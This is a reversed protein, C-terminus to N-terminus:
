GLYFTQSKEVLAAEGDITSVASWSVTVDYERRNDVRRMYKLKGSLSDGTKLSVRSSIDLYLVTQKWHTPTTQVSTSLLVPPSSQNHAFTTDFSIVFGHVQAEKLMRLQFPVEFDLDEDKMTKLDFSAGCRGRSSVILKPDVVEVQAESLLLPSLDSLDFGYADNWWLLRDGAPSSLDSTIAEMYLSAESPLLVGEPSLYRDRAVIVSAFMNEFFLGYGMWESVLVDALQHQGEQLQLLVSDEVKGQILTIVDQYGNKNVIRRAHDIIGSADIGYVAKAGARAAILSLIGSGCGIDLVVKNSLYNNDSLANQYALTRSTDRLMTEHISIHSYSNFYYDNRPNNIVDEEEEDTLDNLVKRYGSIAKELEKLKIDNSVNQSSASDEKIELDTLHLNNSELYEGLEVLLMDDRMVPLLYSDNGLFEKGRITATLNEIFSHDVHGGMLQLDLVNQRIFNILMILAYDNLEGFDKLLMLLDFGVVNKEHQILENVSTFFIESFLSKFSLSEEIEDWDTEDWSEDIGEEFDDQLM